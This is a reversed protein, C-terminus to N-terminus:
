DIQCNSLPMSELWGYPNQSPFIRSLFLDRGSSSCQAQGYNEGHNVLRETASITLFSKDRTRDTQSNTPSTISVVQHDTEDMTSGSISMKSLLSKYALSSISLILYDIKAVQFDM